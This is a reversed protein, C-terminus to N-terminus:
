LSRNRNVKGQAVIEKQLEKSDQILQMIAQMLTTCADLVKGNVELKVGTDKQKATTMM